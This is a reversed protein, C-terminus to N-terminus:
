NYVFTCLRSKNTIMYECLEDIEDKIVVYISGHSSNKSVIDSKCMIKLYNPSYIYKVFEETEPKGPKLFKLKGIESIDLPVQDIKL